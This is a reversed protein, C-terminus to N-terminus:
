IHILSLDYVSVLTVKEGSAARHTVMKHIEVRLLDINADVLPDAPWPILDAVYITTAPSGAFVHDLMEDIRGITETGVGTSQDFVGAKEGRNIDNSGIHLLVIDPRWVNALGFTRSQGNGDTELWELTRSGARGEHEFNTDSCDQSHTSDVGLKGLFEVSNNQLLQILPTRYSCSGQGQTISDGMPLVKVARDAIMPLAAVETTEDSAIQSDIM